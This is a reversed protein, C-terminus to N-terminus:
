AKVGMLNLSCAYEACDGAKSEWRQINIIGATRMYEELSERTFIHKHFDNEDAQGGMLYGVLPLNDPNGNVFKDLIFDFDPVAIALIGGPKLVRVWEALVAETQRYSFHELIHSARVVDVSESQFALPYAELGKCKDVNVYGAIETAGGGINLNM